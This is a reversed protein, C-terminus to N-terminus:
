KKHFDNNKFFDQNAYDYYKQKNKFAEDIMQKVKFVHPHEEIFEKKQFDDNVEDKLEEFSDESLFLLGVNILSALIYAATLEDYNKLDDDSIEYM